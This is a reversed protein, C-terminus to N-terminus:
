RWGLVFRIRRSWITQRTLRSSTLLCRTRLLKRVINVVPSNLWTAITTARCSFNLIMFLTSVAVTVSLSVKMKLFFVKAEGTNAAAPVLRNDLLALLEKAIRYIEEEVRQRYEKAKEGHERQEESHLMRWAARRSGILNKYAVSLLNREEVSLEANVGALKKMFDVM